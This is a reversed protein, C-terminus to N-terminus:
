VSSLLCLSVSQTTTRCRLTKWWTGQSQEVGRLVQHERWSPICNFYCLGTCGSQCPRGEKNETDCGQIFMARPHVSNKRLVSELSAAWPPWRLLWRREQALLCPKFPGLFPRFLSRLLMWWASRRELPMVGGVGGRGVWERSSLQCRCGWM